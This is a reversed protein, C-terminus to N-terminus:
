EISRTLLSIMIIVPACELLIAVTVSTLNDLIIATTSPSDTVISIFGLAGFSEIIKNSSTNNSMDSVFCISWAELDALIIPEYALLSM